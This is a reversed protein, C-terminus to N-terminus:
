EGALDSSIYELEVTLNVQFTGDSEVLLYIDLMGLEETYLTANLFEIVADAHLMNWLVHLDLM